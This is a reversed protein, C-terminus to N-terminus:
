RKVMKAVQLREKARELYAKTLDLRADIRWKVPPSIRPDDLKREAADVQSQLYAVRGLWYQLPM